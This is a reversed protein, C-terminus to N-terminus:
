PGITAKKWPVLSIETDLDIEPVVVPIGAPFEAVDRLAYNAELLRYMLHENGRMRGYVRIAIL